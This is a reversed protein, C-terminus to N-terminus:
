LFLRVSCLFHLKGNLIEENKICHFLLKDSCRLKVELLCEAKHRIRSKIILHVNCFVPCLWVFYIRNQNAWKLKQAENWLYQNHVAKQLLNSWPIRVKKIIHTPKWQYVNYKYGVNRKLCSQENPRYRHQSSKTTYSSILSSFGQLYTWQYITKWTARSM